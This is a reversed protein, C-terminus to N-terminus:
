ALNENEQIIELKKLRKLQLIVLVLTLIIGAIDAIPAAWLAGVIGMSMPLILTLPVLLVIDRVLSLITSEVPRGLSQLFVASAKMVCTPIILSLYIRLSLEGFQLYLDSSEGFLGLVFSPATQFIIFFVGSIIVTSIFIYKYTQRVRKFKGAGYNYGIIPQGGASIGIVISIVIQYVKMVIGYVAIPIDPGYESLLGYEKLVSNTVISMIVISIQTLFSSIGLKVFKMIVHFELAFSKIGLRFTKSKFLYLITIAFSVIQGAITAIAAGKIGLNCSFILIPDLVVNIIAGALMSLMAYKPNGDARIISSLGTSVMYFPIGILIITCYDRALGISTSTAGFSNLIPYMAIAVVLVIVLSIILTLLIMNGVSKHSQKTDKKGQCMSLFSAAGDGFFLAFALAIVTIPYVITTATNGLSGVSSHGIFIQDVINYLAGILLSMICPISFKLLLKKIPLEGLLTQEHM